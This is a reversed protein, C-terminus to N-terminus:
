RIILAVSSRFSVVSDTPSTPFATPYGFGSCKELANLPTYPTEGLSHLFPCPPHPPSPSLILNKGPRHQPAILYSTNVSVGGHEARIRKAAERQPAKAGYFYLFVCRVM